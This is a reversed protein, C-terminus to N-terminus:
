QTPDILFYKLDKKGLLMKFQLGERNVINVHTHIEKNKIKIVMPVKIRLSIGNSSRVTVLSTIHKHKLVRQEITSKKFEKLAEETTVDYIGLEEAYGLVEGYGLQLAVDRDLSSSVAGTDVKAKVEIENNDLGQVSVKQALGIVAKGSIETLEQEITGGFLEKALTIGKKITKVNLGSVRRLRDGLTKNNANQISLGPRANVELIVPGEDRDIAIDVGAYGLKSVRSAKIAMELITNWFPIKIGRLPSKTGPLYDIKKEQLFRGKVIAHTTIGSSIDIGVGIGGTALNARGGSEKTPLRLMAMVPVGNFVIVRVDPVGKYSYIKLDPHVRLRKEIVAIDPAHTLSYTGELIENIHFRLNEQTYEKNHLGVWNGNKKRGYIVKIGEGSFGHDPKIVFTKPFMGLDIDILQKRDRIVVYTEVVPIEAEKLLEKTILKSDAIRRAPKLNYPKTYSFSRANKGLIDKSRKYINNM